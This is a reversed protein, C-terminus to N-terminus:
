TNTDKNFLEEFEIIASAKIVLGLNIPISLVPKPLNPIIGFTLNGTATYQPGAYLIGILFLRTGIIVGNQTTFSGENLIFIPSGSSGPYCALDVLFKEEGKYNNKVHTATIGKRIVPKHNYTDSIGIPYGIMVVDEMASLKDIQEKNPIIDTTLPIYYVKTDTKNIENLAPGLPLCCLDVNNDPHMTWDQNDYTLSFAETDMPNGNTDAKCFEFVCKVSNEAVHKNTILVPICTGSEKNHCLNVIFGTGGGQTGDKYICKILVTSYTLKESLSMENM